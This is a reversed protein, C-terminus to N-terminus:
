RRAPRNPVSRKKISILRKPRNESPFQPYPFGQIIDGDEAFRKVQKKQGDTISTKTKMTMRRKKM